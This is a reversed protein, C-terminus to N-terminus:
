FLFYFTFSVVEKLMMKTTWPRMNQDGGDRKIGGDSIM